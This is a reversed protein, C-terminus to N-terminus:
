FAKQYRLLIERGTRFGNDIGTDRALRLILQQQDPLFWSMGAM